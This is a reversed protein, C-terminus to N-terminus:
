RVRAILADASTIDVIFVITIMLTDNHKTHAQEFEFNCVDVDKSCHLFRWPFTVLSPYDFIYVDLEIYAYCVYVHEDSRYLYPSRM